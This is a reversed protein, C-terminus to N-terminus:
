INELIEKIVKMVQKNQMKWFLSPWIFKQEPINNAVLSPPNIAWTKIKTDWVSNKLQNYKNM